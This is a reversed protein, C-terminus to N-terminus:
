DNETEASFYVLNPQVWKEIPNLIVGGFMNYPLEIKVEVIVKYQSTDVFNELLTKITDKHMYAHNPYKGFKKFYEGRGEEFSNVLTKMDLQWCWGIMKYVKGSIEIFKEM